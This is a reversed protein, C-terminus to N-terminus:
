KTLEKAKNIWNAADAEFFQIKLKYSYKEGQTPREAIMTQTYHKRYRNKVDRYQEKSKGLNIRELITTVVGQNYKPNFLAVQNVESDLLFKESDVFKGSLKSNEDLVVYESFTTVWPYMGLFAYSMREPLRAIIEVKETIENNIIEITTTIALGRVMSLKTLKFSKANYNDILKDQVIGDVEVTISQIHENENETHGTGVFGYGYFSFVNGYHSGWVDEGLRNGKYDIGYITWFSRSEFRIKLDGSTVMISKPMDVLQDRYLYDFLWAKNRKYGNQTEHAMLPENIMKKTTSGLSNYMAYVSSPSCISDIFGVSVRVPNKLYPAFNAADFYKSMEFVKPDKTQNVYHPWGPNRDSLQGNLDCLAPVNAVTAQIKTNLASLIIASGGGQSSGFIGIKASDIEPMESVYDIIRNMGLFVNRFIYKERDPMGAYKYHGAKTYEDYMKKAEASKQPVEYPHVNMTLVAFGSDALMIDAFSGPGAGPVNILLPYSKKGTHPIVLYGYVKSNDPSDVSVSWVTRNSRSFADVKKLEVKANKYAAKGQQWFEWFDAPAEVAPTIKDVDYGVSTIKYHKKQGDDYMISMRLFGPKDLTAEATFPLESTAPDFTLKKVEKRGDNTFFVFVKGTKVPAKDDSLVSFTFKANEGVKYLHDKRDVEVKFDVAFLNAVVVWFLTLLTILKKM